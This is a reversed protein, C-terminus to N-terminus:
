NQWLLAIIEGYKDRLMRTKLKYILSTVHTILKWEESTNVVERKAEKGVRKNKYNKMSKHFEHM